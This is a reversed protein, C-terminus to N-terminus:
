IMSMEHLVDDLAKASNLRVPALPTRVEGVPLGLRQMVYKVPGPSSEIFLVSSLKAFSLHDAFAGDRNSNKYKDWQAVLKEPIVNSLVSVSGDGGNEWIPLNLGDEGSFVAARTRCINAVEWAQALNGSAEKVAQIEPINLLMKITSPIMNLGTRSPVNYVMIPLGVEAVTQYHRMLGDPTPKNYYPSIVLAGDAGLTKAIKTNEVSKHTNNTGTGAIVFAKGNSVEITTGVVAKWEEESLAPSEGTTGCPM